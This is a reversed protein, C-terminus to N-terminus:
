GEMKECVFGYQEAFDRMEEFYIGTDYNAIRGRLFLWKIIEAPRIEIKEAFKRITMYNPVYIRKIEIGRGYCELFNSWSIEDVPNCNKIYEEADELSDVGDVIITGKRIVNVKYKAMGLDEWKGLFMCLQNLEDLRGLCQIIGEIM